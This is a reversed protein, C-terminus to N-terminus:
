RGLGGQSGNVGRIMDSLMTSDRGGKKGATGKARNGAALINPDTRTPMRITKVDPMAAPQGM